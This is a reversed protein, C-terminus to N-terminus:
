SWEERTGMAKRRENARVWTVSSLEVWTRASTFDREYDVGGTFHRVAGCRVCDADSSPTEDRLLWRHVCVETVM